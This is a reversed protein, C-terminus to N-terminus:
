RLLSVRTGAFDQEARIGVGAHGTREILKGRADAVGVGAEHHARALQKQFNGFRHVETQFAFQLRSHHGFVNNQVNDALDPKIARRIPRHLEITRAHRIQCHVVAHGNGIHGDFGAALVTNELEVRLGLLM